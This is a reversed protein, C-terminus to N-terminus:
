IALDAEVRALTRPATMAGAIGRDADGGGPRADLHDAAAAIGAEPTDGAAVLVLDDPGAGEMADDWLGIARATELNAPTARFCSARAVGDVAGAARAAAMLRASDAWRGARVEAAIVGAGGPGGPGRPAAGGAGRAGRRRDRARAAHHGPRGGR